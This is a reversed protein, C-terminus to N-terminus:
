RKREVDRDLFRQYLEQSARFTTQRLREFAEGLDLLGREAAKDLVGLTGTVLLGRRAAEQRAAREDLIIASAGLQEALGIAEREGAGLEELAVDHAMSIQRVELWEPRNVTWQRVIAPTEDHQLEDIVAQPIVIRGYVEHLVAAENILVLYNLPTTNSVVPM